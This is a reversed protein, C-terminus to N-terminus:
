AIIDLQEAQNELGNSFAIANQVPPTNEQEETEGVISQELPTTETNQDNAVADSATQNLANQAEPSLDLVVAEGRDPVENSTTTAANTNSDTNVQETQQPANTTNSERVVPAPAGNEIARLSDASLSPDGNAARIRSVASVVPTNEIVM